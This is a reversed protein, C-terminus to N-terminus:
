GVSKRGVLRADDLSCGNDALIKRVQAPGALTSAFPTTGATGYARSAAVYAANFCDTEIENTLTRMAQVIQDGYITEFGSGNNVSRIDEGTWPIQVGRDKSITLTKNDVTQDTGEPITMASTNDVATAARTFHSRVTDGVAAQESGDGNITVSPIFGVQERGVKDAAKYLDAALDTLVNAM